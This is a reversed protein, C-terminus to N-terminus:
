GRRSLVFNQGEANTCNLQSQSALTCNVSTQTQRILSTMSIEINNRDRYRYTGESLKNGTDTAVSQFSGGSFTSVAVGQTDMWQGEVAGSQRMPSPAGGPVSTACGSIALISALAAWTAPRRHFKMVAEKRM